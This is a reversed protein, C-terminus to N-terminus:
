SFNTIYHYLNERITTVFTQVPSVIRRCIKNYVNRVQYLRVGTGTFSFVVAAKDCLTPSETPRDSGTVGDRNRAPARLSSPTRAGGGAGADSMIAFQTQKFAQSTGKELVGPSKFM